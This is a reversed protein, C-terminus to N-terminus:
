RYVVSRSTEPFQGGCGDVIVRHHDWDTEIQVGLRRLSEIMYQTDDSNLVGTLVSRGSALAALPLARNTISKSGPPRITSRIPGAAPQIKIMDSM